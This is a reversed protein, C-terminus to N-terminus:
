RGLNRAESDPNNRVLEAGIIELVVFGIEPGTAKTPHLSFARGEPTNAEMVTRCKGSWARGSQRGTRIGLRVADDRIGPVVLLRAVHNM